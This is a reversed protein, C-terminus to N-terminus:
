PRIVISDCGFFTFTNSGSTFKGKICAKTTTLGVGSQDTVFHLLMDTDADRTKEDLEYSRELHGQHHVEPAGTPTASNLLNSELGYLVTLPQIKTADFDLPLGYEGANTTLAALSTESYLNISNPFGKPRINIAIPVVCDVTVVVQADNNSLVPDIDDPRDPAIVDDFTFTQEGPATCELTFSETVTRQEDIELAVAVQNAAAPTVTAGSTATATADVDVDMPSSPGHSTIVKELELDFPEGILLELPPEVPDYSVIELDAVAIVLTDTSATNDAPDADPGALNTVTANNTVTKPAGNDYVLDAPVSVVITVATSDHALLEGVKCTVVGASHSCGSSASVFSVGPSLTDVIQVSAAPNPGDNSVTLTYTLQTGAAVPDPSDSVSLELDTTNLEQQLIQLDQLTPVPDLEPGIAGDDSDGFQRFRISVRNWDNHGTLTSGSGGNTCASPRGNTGSTDVNVTV